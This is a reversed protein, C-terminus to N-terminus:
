RYHSVLFRIFIRHEVENKLACLLFANEGHAGLGGQGKHAGKYRTPDLLIDELTTSTTPHVAAATLDLAVPLANFLATASLQLSHVSQTHSLGSVVRSLGRVPLPPPASSLLGSESASGKSTHAHGSESTEEGYHILTHSELQKGDSKRSSAVAEGGVGVASSAVAARASPRSSATPSWRARKPSITSKSSSSQSSADEEVQVPGKESSAVDHIPAQLRNSIPQCLAGMIRLLMAPAHATHGLVDMVRWFPAETGEPGDRTSNRCVVDESADSADSRRRWLDSMDTFRSDQQEETFRSNSSCGLPGLEVGAARLPSARPPPQTPAVSPLSSVGGTPTGSLENGMPQGFESGGTEGSCAAAPSASQTAAFSRVLESPLREQLNSDPKLNPNPNPKYNPYPDPNPKPNPNPNSSPVSASRCHM